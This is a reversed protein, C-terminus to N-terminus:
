DHTGDHVRTAVAQDPNRKGEADNERARRHRANVEGRAPDLAGVRLASRKHSALLAHLDRQPTHVGSQGLEHSLFTGARIKMVSGEIGYIAFM